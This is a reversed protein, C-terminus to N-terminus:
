SLLKIALQTSQAIHEVQSDLLEPYIPLSLCSKAQQEAMPSSFSGLTHPYHKKTEIKNDTLKQAIADREPHWIVFKHWSSESNTDPDVTTVLHDLCQKYYSAIQTRRQQWNKFRNELKWWVMAADVENIQSNYGHNIWQATHPRRLQDVSHAVTDSNTLVAGGLGFANLNKTPDFSLCSSQGLGGSPKDRWSSGLSQAADEILICQYQDAIESLRDYDVTVGYLNVWVIIRNVTYDKSLSLELQDLDINGNRDVDIYSVKNSGCQRLFGANTAPFSIAPFWISPLFKRAVTAGLFGLADTGSATLIAHKRNTLRCLSKELRRCYDGNIVTGSSYVRDALDLYIERDQQYQLQVNNFPIM